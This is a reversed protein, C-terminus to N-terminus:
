NLSFTSKAIFNVFRQGYHRPPICSIESMGKLTGVAVREVKKKACFPTWVDIIGGFWRGNEDTSYLMSYDLSGIKSLFGVDRQIQELFTRKAAEDDVYFKRGDELFNLDKRVSTADPTTYRGARSGKLDYVEGGSKGHCMNHMVVVYERRGNCDIRYMGVFKTLYSIHERKLYEIYAPLNERAHKIEIGGLTKTIFQRDRTWYLDSNSKGAGTIKMPAHFSELIRNMETETLLEAFAEQHYAKVTLKALSGQVSTKAKIIPNATSTGVNRLHLFDAYGDMSVTRKKNTQQLIMRIGAELMGEHSLIGATLSQQSDEQTKLSASSVICTSADSKESSPLSVASEKIQHKKFMMMFGGKPKGKTCHISMSPYTDNTGIFTSVIAETM